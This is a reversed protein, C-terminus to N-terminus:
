LKRLENALRRVDSESVVVRGYEGAAPAAFSIKPNRFEMPSPITSRLGAHIERVGSRLVIDCVNEARIGGGAVIAIRNGALRVLNSLKEIGKMASAEGGSTLVRDVGCSILEELSRPLDRTLDFARHFTVDLPRAADVLARTRVQDIAGDRNLIGFVIGNAQLEKAVGIDRQMAEFEDDSYCFDGARPRILILLPLSLRERVVSIAGHSPTLGGEEPNSFFEVRDAGGAQAALASDITHAATEFQIRLRSNM